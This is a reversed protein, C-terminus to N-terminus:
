RWNTKVRNATTNFWAGRCLLERLRWMVKGALCICM